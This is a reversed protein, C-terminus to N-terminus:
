HWVPGSVLKNLTAANTAITNREWGMNSWTVTGHDADAWTASGETTTLYSGMGVHSWYLARSVVLVLLLQSMHGKHAASAEARETEAAHPMNLLQGGAAAGPVDAAVRMSARTVTGTM